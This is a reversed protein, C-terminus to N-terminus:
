KDWVSKNKDYKELDDPTNFSWLMDTNFNMQFVAVDYSKLLYNYVPAVYLEKINLKGNEYDNIMQEAADFFASARGLCYCGAIANTSIVKKEATEVCYDPKRYDCIINSTKAYSYKPDKSYFTLLAPWLEYNKIFEVYRKCDFAFDCDMSILYDNNADIYPRALMITELAGRTTNEVSVINANPYYTHINNIADYTNIFENRIIFTYKVDDWVSKRMDSISMLARRYLEIGDVKIFPKPITYGASKFRQGEGAMPMIIHLNM